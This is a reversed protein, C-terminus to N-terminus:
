QDWDRKLEKFSGCNIFVNNIMRPQFSHAVCCYYEDKGRKVSLDVYECEECSRHM